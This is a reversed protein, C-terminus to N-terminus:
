KAPQENRGTDTVTSLSLLRIRGLERDAIILEIEELKKRIDNRHDESTNPNNLADLLVATTTRVVSRLKRNQMYSAIEVQPGKPRRRDLAKNPLTPVVIGLSASGGVLLVLVKSPTSFCLNFVLTLYLLAGRPRSIDM